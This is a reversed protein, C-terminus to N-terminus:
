YNFFTKFDNSLIKSSFTTGILIKLTAEDKNVKSEQKIEPISNFTLEKELLINEEQKDQTFTAFSSKLNSLEEKWEKELM